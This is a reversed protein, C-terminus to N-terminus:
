AASGVARLRQREGSRLRAERRCQRCARAGHSRIYTNQETLEHGSGCHTRRSWVHTGHRVADRLNESRTGYCLNSVRPDTRDGNKHRVEQGDPCPGIFAEAVLSHVSRNRRTGPRSVRVMPYGDVLYPSLVRGTADRKYSMVRGSSSIAYDPFGAVPRWEEASM